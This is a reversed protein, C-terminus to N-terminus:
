GIRGWARGNNTPCSCPEGRPGPQDLPCVYAGAYCAEGPPAPRPAYYYYGSPPGYYVPPPVAIIVGPGWWGGHRWAQAPRPAVTALAIALLLLLRGSM